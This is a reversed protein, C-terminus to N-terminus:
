VLLCITQKLNLKCNYLHMYVNNGLVIISVTIEWCFQTENPDDSFQLVFGAIMDLWMSTGLLFPSSLENVSPFLFHPLSINTEWDHRVRQSDISQVRYPEETWPIIWALINSHITMEKELPDERGLFQVRTEQVAPLHNVLHVILSTGSCFCHCVKNEQAGFDSCITVAAM